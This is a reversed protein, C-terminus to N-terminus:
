SVRRQTEPTRQDAAPVDTSRAVLSAAVYDAERELPIERYATWHSMGAMRNRVYGMLYRRLFGIRGHRRWQEVHALEHM